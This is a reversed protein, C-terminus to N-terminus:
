ELEDDEEPLPDPETLREILDAAERMRRALTLPLWYPYVQPERNMLDIDLSGERFDMIDITAWSIDVLDATRPDGDKYPGWLNKM